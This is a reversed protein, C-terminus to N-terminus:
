VDAGDAEDDDAEVIADEIEVRDDNVAQAIAISHATVTALDRSDDAEVETPPLTVLLRGYPALITITKKAELSQFIPAAWAFGEEIIRRGRKWATILTVNRVNVDGKWSAPKIHDVTDPLARSDRTLVPLRLRRPARDWEPHKALISSVLAVGSLREGIQKMDVNADTGIMTRLIGFLEELHDTGLLIIYFNSDPLEVKAKAVCFYINKLTLAIDQYLLTAMFDTRGLHFLALSLHAAASLHELQESLSLETCLFPFLFHYYLQGLTNLAKRAALFSPSKHKTIPPLSWIDKLLDFALKVDQKDDPNLVSKVHVATLGASKLQMEIIAPTIRFDHVVIGRPRLLANRIRKNIHKWDKDCTLDDDGVHLDM